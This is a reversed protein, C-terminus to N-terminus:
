GAQDFRRALLRANLQSRPAAITDYDSGANAQRGPAKCYEFGGDVSNM